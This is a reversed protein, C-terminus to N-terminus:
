GGPSPAIEFEIARNERRGDSNDRVEIALKYSGPTLDATDITFNEPVPGEFGEPARDFTLTLRTRGERRSRGFLGGLVGFFGKREEETRGVTVWERYSRVNGPNTRGLGYVELYVTITEGRAFRLSPRPLLTVGLRSHVPPANERPLSGLVVGSLDLRGTHFPKLELGGRGVSRRGPVELSLAFLYAGPALSARNVGLWEGGARVAPERDFALRKWTSDFVGFASEVEPQPGTASDPASGYFEIEVRGDGGAFDAAYFEIEAPPLPDRFSESVMAQNIDGAGPTVSPVYIFEGAGFRKEFLFHVNGYYWIEMPNSWTVQHTYRDPPGHRIYLLGRQDLVLRRSKGFFLDPDFEYYSAMPSILRNYDRSTNFLSHPNQQRYMKEAYLLRAYHTILRENRGDLPDPDRINWFRRWFAAIDRPNGLKGYSEAEEPTFITEAELRIRDWDGEEAALDLAQGYCFEFGTSDGLALRCRAELIKREARKKQVGFKALEALRVLASAPDGLRFSDWALELRWALSDPRQGLWQELCAGVERLEDDSQDLIRDRWLRYADRYGPDNCILRALAKAAVRYGQTQRLAFGTQALAYLAERSEPDTRLALRFEAVAQLNRLPTRRYVEGLGVHAESRVLPDDSWRAAEFDLRAEDLRGLELYLKGREIRPRAHRSDAEVARDLLGLAQRTDGGSDLIQRARGSLEVALLSDRQAARAPPATLAAALLMIEGIRKILASM